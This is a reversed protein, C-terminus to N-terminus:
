HTTNEDVFKVPKNHQNKKDIPRSTVESLVIVVSPGSMENDGKFSLSSGQEVKYARKVNMVKYTTVTMAEKDVAVLTDGENPTEGDFSAQEIEGDRQIYTTM